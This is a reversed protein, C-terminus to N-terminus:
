WTIHMSMSWTNVFFYMMYLIIIWDCLIISHPVFLIAFYILTHAHAPLAVNHFADAKEIIRSRAKKAIKNSKQGRFQIIYKNVMTSHVNYLWYSKTNLIIELDNSSFLTMLKFVWRRVQIESSPGNTMISWFVSCIASLTPSNLKYRM